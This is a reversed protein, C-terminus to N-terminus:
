IDVDPLIFFFLSVFTWMEYLTFFLFKENEHTLMYLQGIVFLCANECTM